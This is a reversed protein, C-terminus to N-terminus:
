LPSAQHRRLLERLYRSELMFSYTNGKGAMRLVLHDAYKPIISVITACIILDTEPDFDGKTRGAAAMRQMMLSAEEFAKSVEELGKYQCLGRELAAAAPCHYLVRQFDVKPGFSKDTWQTWLSFNHIFNAWSRMVVGLDLWSILTCSEPVQPHRSLGTCGVLFVENLSICPRLDPLTKLRNCNVLYFGNLQLLNELGPLSEIATGSVDLRQLNTLNGLGPLANLAQCRSLILDELSVLSGLGVISGRIPLNKLALRRLHTLSSLGGIVITDSSFELNDLIEVVQLSPMTGLELVPPFERNWCTIRLVKLTNALTGVVCIGVPNSFRINLERLNSCTTFDPEQVLRECSLKVSRLEEMSESWTLTELVFSKLKLSRLCNLPSLNLSKQQVLNIDLVVLNSWERLKEAPFSIASGTQLRLRVLSSWRLGPPGSKLCSPLTRGNREYVCWRQSEELHIQHEAFDVYLDHITVKFTKNKEWDEILSNRRLNKMQLATDCHLVLLRNLIAMENLNISLFIGGARNFCRVSAILGSCGESIACYPHHIERQVGVKFGM